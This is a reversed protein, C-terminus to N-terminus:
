WRSGCRACIATTGHGSQYERRLRQRGSGPYETASHPPYDPLGPDLGSVVGDDDVDYFLAVQLDEVDNALVMGDRILQPPGNPANPNVWYVHAPVAM